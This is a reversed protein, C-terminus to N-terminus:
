IIMKDTLGRPYSSQLIDHLWILLENQSSLNYQSNLKLEDYLKELDNYNDVDSLRPLYSYSFQNNDLRKTLQSLTDPKSYEVDTWISKHIPAKSGFLVFGGDICPGIVGDHTNNSLIQIANSIYRSSIQPSDSGIIIVNKYHQFLNDFVNFIRKGLEGEGTWIVEFSSWFPNRVSEKEAVAWYPHIDINSQEKVALMVEQIAAVSRYYFLEAQKSGIESALRTKVPSLGPTKGFIAVATEM